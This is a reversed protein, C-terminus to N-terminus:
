EFLVADVRVAEAVGELVSEAALGGRRCAQLATPNVADVAEVGLLQETRVRNVSVLSESRKKM